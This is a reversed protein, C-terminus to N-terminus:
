WAHRIEGYLLDFAEKGEIVEPPRESEDADKNFGAWSRIHQVVPNHPLQEKLFEVHWAHNLELAHTPDTTGSLKVRKMLGPFLVPFDSTNQHATGKLVGFRSQKACERHSFLDRLPDLNTIWQFTQSQLSIFPKSISLNRTVAHMWPDQAIGCTFPNSPEQLATLATAAGFSHGAMVFSDFDMRDQFQAEFGKTEHTKALLNTITRGANLDELLQVVEKVEQAKHDVQRRRFNFAFEEETSTEGPPLKDPIRLYSVKDKYNNVAAVAASGDRHEIAAVIFGESAMNGCFASYTTRMGGLGHCFIMLPLHQSLPSATPHTAAFDKSTSSIEPTTPTLSGALPANLFGPTKVSGLIPGLLMLSLFSPLKSFDGYGKSYFGTRPLWSARNHRKAAATTTPYYIRVLVGKNTTTEPTEIDFVGVPHPGLYAPLQPLFSGLWRRNKSLATTPRRLPMSDETPTPLLATASTDASDKTAPFSTMQDLPHQSKRLQELPTKATKINTRLWRGTSNM